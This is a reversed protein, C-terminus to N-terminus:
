IPYVALNKYIIAVTNYCQFSLGNTNSMTKDKGTKYEGDVYFKVTDGNTEVKLHKVTSQSISLDWLSISAGGFRFYAAGGSGSPRTSMVDLEICYNKSSDRWTTSNSIKTTCESAGSSSTREIKIGNTEVSVSTDASTITYRDSTPTETGNDYFMYATDSTTNWIKLNKIKLSSLDELRFRFTFDSLPTGTDTGKTLKLENNVFAFIVLQNLDMVLKVQSGAVANIESLKLSILNTNDYFQVRTESTIDVVDFEVMVPTTYCFNSSASPTKFTNTSLGTTDHNILMGTSDVTVENSDSHQWQSSHSNDICLDYAICDEVMIPQSVVSGGDVTCKAVIDVEGAGTGTYGDELVANGNVDTTATGILRLAM